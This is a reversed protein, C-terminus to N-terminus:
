CPKGFPHKSANMEAIAKKAGKVPIKKGLTDELYLDVLNGVDEGEHHSIMMGDFKGIWMNHLDGEQLKLSGGDFGCGSTRGNDYRGWLNLLTVVRRGENRIKIAVRSIEHTEWNRQATARATPKPRDRM